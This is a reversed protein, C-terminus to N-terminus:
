EKDIMGIGQLFDIMQQRDSPIQKEGSQLAEIEKAMEEDTLRDYGCLRYQNFNMVQQETFAGPDRKRFRDRMEQWERERQDQIAKEQEQEKKIYAERRQQAFEDIAQMIVMPDVAGYFKGYEGRKFKQFFIFFETLKFYGYAEIIMEALETIQYPKLKEKCGAFESLNQLQIVMWSLAADAGYTRRMLGISPATGFYCREIHRTYQVQKAPNFEAM